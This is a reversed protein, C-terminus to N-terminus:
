SAVKRATDKNNTASQRGIGAWAAAPAFAELNLLIRDSVVRHSIKVVRSLGILAKEDIEEHGFLDADYGFDRLFWSFKWLAKPTCFIRTVLTRGELAGPELIAFRVSYFPKQRERAYRVQDVRVLYVGDPTETDPESM